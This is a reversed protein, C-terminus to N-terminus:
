DWRYFAIVLRTWCMHQVAYITPLMPPVCISVSGGEADEGHASRTQVGATMEDWHCMYLSPPSASAHAFSLTWRLVTNDHDCM